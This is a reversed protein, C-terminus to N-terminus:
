KSNAHEVSACMMAKEHSGDLRGQTTVAGARMENIAESAEDNNWRPEDTIDM